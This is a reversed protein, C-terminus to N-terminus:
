FRLDQSQMIGEQLELAEVTELMQLMYTTKPLYVFTLLQGLSLKAM